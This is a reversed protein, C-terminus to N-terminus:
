GPMTSIGSPAGEEEGMGDEGEKEVGGFLGSGWWREDEGASCGGQFSRGLEGGERCTFECLPRKSLAQRPFKPWFPHVDCM